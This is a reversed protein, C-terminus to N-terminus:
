AIGPTRVFFLNSTVYDNGGTPFNTPTGWINTSWGLTSAGSQNITQYITAARVPLAAAAIAAIILLPQIRLLAKMYTQSKRSPTPKLDTHGHAQSSPVRPSPAPNM